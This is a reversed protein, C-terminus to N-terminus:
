LDEIDILSYSVPFSSGFCSITDYFFLILILKYVTNSDLEFFDCV